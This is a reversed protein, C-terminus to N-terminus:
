GNDSYSNVSIETFVFYFYIFVGANNSVLRSGNLTIYHSSSVDVNFLESILFPMFLDLFLKKPPIPLIYYKM